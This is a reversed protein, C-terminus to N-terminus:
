AATLARSLDLARGMVDCTYDDCVDRDHSGAMEPYGSALDTLADLLHALPKQLAVDIRPDGHCHESAAAILAAPSDTTPTTDTWGRTDVAPVSRAYWVGGPRGKWGYAFPM